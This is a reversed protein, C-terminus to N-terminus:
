VGDPEEWAMSERFADELTRYWNSDMGINMHKGSLFILGWPDEPGFGHECYAIGTNSKKDELVTWCPHALGVPGYDWERDVCYPNILLRKLASLVKEDEIHRLEQEVLREVTEGDLRRKPHRALRVIRSFYECGKEGNLENLRRVEAEAEEEDWFAKTLTVRPEVSAPDVPHDVRVVAYLHDNRANQQNM